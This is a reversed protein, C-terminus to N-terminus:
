TTYFYKLSILPTTQTPNKLIEGCTDRGKSCYRSPSGYSEMRKTVFHGFGRSLINDSKTQTCMELYRLYERVSRDTPVSTSCNTWHGDVHDVTEQVLLVSTDGTYIESAAYIYVYAYTYCPLTPLLGSDWVNSM